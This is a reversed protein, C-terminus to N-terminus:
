NEPPAQASIDKLLEYLDHPRMSNKGAIERVTSEPDAEVGRATLARTIGFPDLGYERCVDELSRRGFGAPPFPPLGRGSGEVDEESKMIRYLGQPTTENRHAIEQLTQRTDEVAIGQSKLRELAKDPDMRTRRTFSELSSLEAHGYPPVGYELAANEKLRENFDLVWGFPPLGFYAGLVFALTVALSTNFEPSFVALRKEKDKFYNVLPRWNYYIHLLSSLLFLVGALIHINTWDTKGLGALRWGTWYAVRGQPTVYLVIGTVVLFIFSLLSTLSTIKRMKM